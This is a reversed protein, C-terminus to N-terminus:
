KPPMSKGRRHFRGKLPEKIESKEEALIATGLQSLADKLASDKIPSLRSELKSRESDSLHYNRKARRSRLTPLPGQRLRLKQVAPYGYFVNIKEIVLPELHQLELAFGSGVRVHLTGGTKQGPPFSLKEPLCHDALVTGVIEPWRSIVERQAFGFRRFAKSTYGRLADAIPKTRRSRTTM